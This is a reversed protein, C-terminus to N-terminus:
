ALTEVPMKSREIADSVKKFKLPDNLKGSLIRSVDYSNLGAKTAVDEQRLEKLKMEALLKRCRLPKPMRELQASM